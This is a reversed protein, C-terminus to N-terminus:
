RCKKEYLTNPASHPPAGASPRELVSLHHLVVIEAVRVSQKRSRICRACRAASHAAAHRIGSPATWGSRPRWDPGGGGPGRGECVARPSPSPLRPIPARRVADFQRRRPAGGGAGGRENRASLPSRLRQIRADEFPMSSRGFAGGRERGRGGSSCPPSSFKSRPGAPMASRRVPDGVGRGRGECVARPSPSFEIASQITRTADGKGWATQPPLAPSSPRGVM